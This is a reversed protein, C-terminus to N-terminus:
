AAARFGRQKRRRLAERLAKALRVQAGDVANEYLDAPLAERAHNVRTGVTVKKESVVASGLGPFRRALKRVYSPFIEETRRKGDESELNRRVRGGLSKAAAYWGAKALGVLQQQKRIYARLSPASVVEAAQFGKPVRGKPDTRAARHAAPNLAEVKLGADRMYKRVQADNGERLARLFGRALSRSRRELLKFVKGRDDKTLFVRGIDGEVRRRFKVAPGERFGLPMTAAGMEVCLGRAEQKLISAVDRETGRVMARTFSTFERLGTVKVGM